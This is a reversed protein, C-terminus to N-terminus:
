SISQKKDILTIYYETGHHDIAKIEHNLFLSDCNEFTLQGGKPFYVQRIICKNNLKVVYALLTYEKRGIITSPQKSVVVNAYEKIGVNLDEVTVSPNCINCPNMGNNKAAELLLKYKQKGEITKCHFRHYKQGDSVRYVYGQEEHDTSTVPIMLHKYKVFDDELAEVTEAELKDRNDPNKTKNIRTRIYDYLGPVVEIFIAVGLIYLLVNNSTKNDTDKEKSTITEKNQRYPNNTPPTYPPTFPEYEYEKTIDSSSEEGAYEGTHFHYEGTKHNWHGGNADTRGPHCLLKISLTSMLVFATLIVRVKM